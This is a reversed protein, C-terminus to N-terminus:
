RWWQLTVKCSINISCLLGKLGPLFNLSVSLLLCSSLLFPGSCFVFFLMLMSPCAACRFVKSVSFNLVNFCLRNTKVESGEFHFELSVLKLPDKTSTWTECSTNYTQLSSLFHWMVRSSGRNFFLMWLIAKLLLVCFFVEFDMSNGMQHSEWLWGTPIMMCM